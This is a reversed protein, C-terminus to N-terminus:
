VPYSHRVSPASRLTRRFSPDEIATRLATALLRQMAVLETTAPTVMTVPVGLGHVARSRANYFREARRATVGRIGVARALRPVRRKFQQTAGHRDTKLLAELAAVVHGIALETYQMRFSWECLWMARQVRRPLEGSVDLYARALRGLAEADDHTLWDREGTPVRFAYFRLDPDLAVIEPGAATLGEIRRAAFETCHANIVIYRSLALTRQILADPDWNHGGKTTPAPHRVFSYRQSANYVPRFNLNAPHCARQYEEVEARSLRVIQLENTLSVPPKGAPPHSRWAPHPTGPTPIVAVDTISADAFPDRAM